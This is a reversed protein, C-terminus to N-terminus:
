TGRAPRSRTRLRTRRRRSSRRRKIMANMQDIDYKTGIMIKDKTDTDGGMKFLGIEALIVVEGEPLINYLFRVIENVKYGKPLIFGAGM